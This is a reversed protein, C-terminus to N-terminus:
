KSVKDRISVQYIRSFGNEYINMEKLLDAYKTYARVGAKINSRKSTFYLIGSEMDVFPCYDIKPSNINGGLNEAASWSGQEDKYSIYMDGGGFGDKRQWGSFILFSEDPSIFANFEYGTTNISDSLPVPSAYAGNEWKCVYIEDKRESDPIACTFYLNNSLTVSPYFEDHESNVPEGMNIPASWPKGKKAREVYWIDFDKKEHSAASLPRNSVFYLRLGDPSFVPELDTFKGSFPVIEPESWPGNEKSVKLLVSLEGAPSLMTFYAEDAQPSITFDRINSFQSFLEPLFPQVNSEHQGFSEIATILLLSFVLTKMSNTNSPYSVFLVLDAPSTNKADM